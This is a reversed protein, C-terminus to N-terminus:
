RSIYSLLFNLTMQYQGTTNVWANEKPPAGYFVSKQFIKYFECAFMHSPTRGKRQEGVLSAVKSFLVGNRTNEQRKRVKGYFKMFTIRYYVQSRNSM